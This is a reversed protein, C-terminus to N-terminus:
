HSNKPLQKKKLAAKQNAGSGSGSGYGLAERKEADTLFTAANIREWLAERRPLLASLADMDGALRVNDDTWASLWRSLGGALANFLPLVTQEWLALRAEKQNSYTNDGPIGLLMPPYGFATAIARAAAHRMDLFDMDQPSLMMSTWKLGGELLMPRGANVAGSYQGDLESRLRLFQEESLSGSGEKGGEVVLAGSPRCGNSLLAQNWVEAANYQEIAGAAVELPALGYWDDLPNSSKLHLIASLGSVADASWEKETDGLRYVYGAAVGHAGPIVQMREPRLLWLERPNGADDRICEIFVNGALLLHTAAEEFFAGGSQQPNPRNLLTLLPHKSFEVGSASYLLLPVEAVAAAIDRVARFVVPNERFGAEALSLYDRSLSRAQFTGPYEFWQTAGASARRRRKLFSLM